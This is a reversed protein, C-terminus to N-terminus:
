APRSPSPVFEAPAVTGLEPHEWRALAEVGVIRGTRLEAKPQYALVLEGREIAGRLDAALALRRPSHHDQSPEFTAHGSSAAKAAYM